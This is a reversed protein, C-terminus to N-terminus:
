ALNAMAKWTGPTGAVTCMWGAPNGSSPASNWCKEGVIWTGTTPAATAQVTRKTLRRVVAANLTYDTTFNVAENDKVIADASTTNVVYSVPAGNVRNGTVILGPLAGAAASNTGLGTFFPALTTDGTALIENDKMVINSCTTMGANIVRTGSDGAVLARDIRFKNGEIRANSGEILSIGSGPSNASTSLMVNDKVILNTIPDAGGLSMVVSLYDLDKFVNGIITLNDTAGGWAIGAGGSIPTSTRTGILVNNAILIDTGGVNSDAVLCDCDVALNGIVSGQQNIGFEIAEGSQNYITNNAVLIHTNFGCSIGLHGGDIINGRIITRNTRFIEFPVGVAPNSSETFTNDAVLVETFATSVHGGFGMGGGYECGRINNGVVRIGTSMSGIPTLFSFAAICGAFENRELRFDEVANEIRVAHDAATDIQCDLIQHRAAVTASSACQVIVPITNAGGNHTIRLNRLTVDSDGRMRVVSATLTNKAKLQSGRGTGSLTVNAPVDIRASTIYVGPPFYVNGGGATVAATIAANIATLDDTSGDGTAGSHKVNFVGLNSLRDEHDSLEATQTGLTTEHATLTDTIDNHDDTHDDDGVIRHPPIPM